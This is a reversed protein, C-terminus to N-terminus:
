AAIIYSILFILIASGLVSLAVLVLKVMRQHQHLPAEISELKHLKNTLDRNYVTM